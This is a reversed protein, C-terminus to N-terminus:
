PRKAKYIAGSGHRKVPRCVVSGGDLDFIPEEPDKCGKWVAVAEEIYDAMDSLSVGPPVEVTVTFKRQM